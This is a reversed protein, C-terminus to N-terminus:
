VINTTTKDIMTQNKEKFFKLYFKNILKWTIMCIVLIILSVIIQTKM